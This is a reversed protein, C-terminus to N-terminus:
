AVVARRRRMAAGTLGFGAILMAWSAPEPVNTTTVGELRYAVANGNTSFITGQGFGNNPNAQVANGQGVAGIGFQGNGSFDLRPRVGMWYTGPGLTVNIPLTITWSPSYSAVGAGIVANAASVIVNAADGTASAGAAATSTYFAVQWFQVGALSSLGNYGLAGAIAKTLQTSAGLTFDDIVFIDFGDFGPEFDQSAYGNSFDGTQDFVVAADAQGAVMLMATALLFARM